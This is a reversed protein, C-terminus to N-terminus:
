RLSVRTEHDNHDNEHRGALNLAETMDWEGGSPDWYAFYDDVETDKRCAHM